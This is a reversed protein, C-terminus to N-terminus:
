KVQQFHVSIESFCITEMKRAAYYALCFLTIKKRESIGEKKNRFNRSADHRVNNLNDGNIENPDQLRQLESQKWQGLLESCGEDFWPKHKKL